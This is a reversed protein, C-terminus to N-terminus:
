EVINDSYGGDPLISVVASSPTIDLVGPVRHVRANRELREATITVNPYRRIGGGYFLVAEYDSSHIIRGGDPHEPLKEIERLNIM